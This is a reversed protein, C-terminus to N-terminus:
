GHLVEGAIGLIVPLVGICVFAPLFCLGLPLLAWVGVREARALAAVSRDRRVEGAVATVAGALRAGSGACRRAAIAVPEYGPTEALGTWTAYPDAGWQLLRGVRALPAVTEALPSPQGDPDSAEDIVAAISALARDPPAGARLCGALLELVLPLGPLGHQARQSARQRVLVPGVTVAGLVLAAAPPAGAVALTLTVAVGVAVPLWWRVPQAPSVPRHRAVGGGLGANVGGPGADTARGPRALALAGAAAIWALVIM